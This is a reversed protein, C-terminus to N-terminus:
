DLLLWSSALGCIVRGVPKTSSLTPSKGMNELRFSSPLSLPRMKSSNVLTFDLQYTGFCTISVLGPWVIPALLHLGFLTGETHPLPLPNGPFPPPLFPTVSSPAFHCPRQMQAQSQALPPECCCQKYSFFTPFVWWCSHVLQNPVHPEFWWPFNIFRFLM